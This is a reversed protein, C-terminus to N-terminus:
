QGEVKLGDVVQQLLGPLEAGTTIIISDGKEQMRRAKQYKRSNTDNDAVLFSVSATVSNMLMINLKGEFRRNLHEVFEAKNTFGTVGGTIAIHVPVGENVSVQFQTEAFMLETEYEILTNYINVAMVGSESSQLGLKEAVWPAQYSKIDAYAAEISDYDRFLKYATTAISPIGGFQVMEWLECSRKPSNVFNAVKKQFTSVGDWERGELLFVQYPSTFKFARCVTQCTAEGWDDVKMAKAMAELRAAVKDPCFRNPCSIQKLSDSFVIEKGCTPCEFPICNLVEQSILGNSVVDQLSISM